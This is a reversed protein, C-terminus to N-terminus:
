APRCSVLYRWPSRRLGRFPYCTLLLLQREAVPELIGVDWMSIVSLETVVWPENGSRTRLEIRDGVQLERLFAFSGDRHGAIVCNGTGNPSASGDVHGPGFALSSGSAGSLITRRVGLRPVELRAVPHMDAWNWPRHIGGDELHAEFSREILKEALAAKAAMWAQEGLTLGGALSLMAATAGLWARCRRM